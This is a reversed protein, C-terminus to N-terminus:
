GSFDAFLYHIYLGLKWIEIRHCICKSAGFNVDKVWIAYGM